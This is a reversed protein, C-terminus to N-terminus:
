VPKIAVTRPRGNWLVPPGSLDLEFGVERLLTPLDLEACDLYWPEYNHRYINWLMAKGFVTNPQKSTPHGRTPIDLHGFVGGPRLIRFTEAIAQRVADADMEHFLLYDSVIDFHDDPFRTDEAVRQAFHVDFGMKAARHHAYRVMPGGVDIGWCEAEPFRQKYATVAQGPGCGLELIRSVLGDAPVPQTQTIQFFAEDHDSFGLYHALSLCYHYLWGAFENGVYGGPQRHIEHRAYDPVVISPDLELTGPGSRDTAEMAGIYGARDAEFVRLARDWMMDHIAWGMKVRAAQSPDRMTLDFCTEYDLDTDGLPLQQAHLFEERQTKLAPRQGDKSLWIKFGRTFDQMSNADLDPFRVAHAAKVPEPLSTPDIRLDNASAVAVEPM